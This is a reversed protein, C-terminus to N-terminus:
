DGRDRRRQEEEERRREAELLREREESQQRAAEDLEKRRIEGTTGMGEDEDNDGPRM